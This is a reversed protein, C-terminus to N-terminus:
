ITQHEIMPYEWSRAKASQQDPDHAKAHKVHDTNYSGDNKLPVSCGHDEIDGFRIGRLWGM